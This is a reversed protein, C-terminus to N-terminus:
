LMQRSQYQLKILEESCSPALGLGRTVSRTRDVAGLAKGAVACKEQSSCNLTTWMPCPLTILLQAVWVILAGM